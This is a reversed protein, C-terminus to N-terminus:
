IYEFNPFVVNRGENKHFCFPDDVDQNEPVEYERSFYKAVSIPAFTMGAELYKHRMNVCIYGDENSFGHFAKWELQQKAALDLLRKSRISISNGVRIVEGNIDRYSFDDTPLPWPAGIYDYELFIDMWSQPNVIFGDPHILLAYPTDVHEGLNYVVDYNWQDISTISPTYEVQIYSPVWVKKDTVFKVAGWAINRCSYELAKLNGEINTSGMAILTVEPLRLISRM